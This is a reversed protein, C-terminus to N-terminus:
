TEAVSSKDSLNILQQILVPECQSGAYLEKAGPSLWNRTRGLSGASGLSGALSGAL